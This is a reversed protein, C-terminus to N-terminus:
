KREKRAAKAAAIAEPTSAKALMESISQTPPAAAARRKEMEDLLADTKEIDSVARVESKLQSACFTVIDKGWSTDTFFKLHKPLDPIEGSAHRREAETMCRKFFKLPPMKVNVAELSAELQDTLQRVLAYDQGGVVVSENPKLALLFQETENQELEGRPRSAQHKETLKDLTKGIHHNPVVDSPAAAPPPASRSVKSRPHPASSAPKQQRHEPREVPKSAPQTSQGFSNESLSPDPPKAKQSNKDGGEEETPMADASAAAAGSVTPHPAEEKLSDQNVSINESNDNRTTHKVAPPKSKLYEIRITDPPNAKLWAIASDFLVIRYRFCKGVKERKLIGVDPDSLKHLAKRATKGCCNIKSALADESFVGTWGLMFDHEGIRITKRWDLFGFLRYLVLNYIPEHLGAADLAAECEEFPVAGFTAFPISLNIRTDAAPIQGTDLSLDSQNPM